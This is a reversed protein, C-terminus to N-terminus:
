FNVKLAVSASLVDISNKFSYDMMGIIGTHFRPCVKFFLRCENYMTLPVHMKSTRYIDSFYALSIYKWECGGVVSFQMGHGGNRSYKYLPELAVFGKDLGFTYALGLYFNDDRGGDALLTRYEAHFYIPRQWFKQEWFMQAYAWYSDGNSFPQTGLEVYAYGVYNEGNGTTESILRLENSTSYSVFVSSSLSHSSEEQAEVDMSTGLLVVSMIFVYLYCRSM